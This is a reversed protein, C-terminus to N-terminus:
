KKSKSKSKAAAKVTKTDEVSLAKVDEEPTVDKTDDVPVVKEDDAVVDKVDPVPTDSLPTVIIEGRAIRIRNERLVKGLAKGSIVCKDM